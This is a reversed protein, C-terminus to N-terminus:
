ALHGPPQFLFQGVATRTDFTATAFRIPVGPGALRDHADLLAPLSRRLRDLRYAVVAAFQRAQADDLLRRGDPREGLPITGSIGDDVYEGAVDLGYLGVYSRLFDLQAQVTGREAQDETSVRAYLAVRQPAANPLSNMCAM